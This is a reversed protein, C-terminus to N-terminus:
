IQYFHVSQILVLSGANLYAYHGKFTRWPKVTRISDKLQL